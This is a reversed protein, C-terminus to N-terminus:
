RNRRSQKLVRQAIEQKTKNVEMAFLGGIEDAGAYDKVPVKFLSAAGYCIGKCVRPSFRWFAYDSYVPSPMCVYPLTFTDGANEIPADFVLQSESSPQIVYNDNKAFNNECDSEGFLAAELHTADTVTLVYGSSGNEGDDKNHIIDREYVKDTTLFLKTSDTLTAQGGSGEDATTITSEILTEKTPKDIISFSGPTSKSDTQNAMFINAYEVMVPYTTQEETANYYRGFWRGNVTKMYPRIFDPPIDYEQTDELTTIALNKHLIGTERLFISAALDLNEYLRLYSAYANTVRLEDAYDLTLSILKKGDM